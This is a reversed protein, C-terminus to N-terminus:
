GAEPLRIGLLLDRGEGESRKSRESFGAKRYLALAAVNDESADLEVRRCGRERGRGLATRVLASGLGVRRAGARVFLDELWCDEAAMWVSHRYRLQCVGAPPADDHPTGLLFETHRQEILDEVSALFANESPWDRGNHDRLEVLLRAVTEAEAPEAV